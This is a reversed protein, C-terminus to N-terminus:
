CLTVSNKFQLRRTLCKPQLINRLQPSKFQSIKERLRTYQLQHEEEWQKTLLTSKISGRRSVFHLYPECGNNLKKPTM